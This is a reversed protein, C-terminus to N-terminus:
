TLSDKVTQKYEAQTIEIIAGTPAYINNFNSCRAQAISLGETQSKARVVVWVSRARPSRMHALNVRYYKM